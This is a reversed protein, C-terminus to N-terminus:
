FDHRSTPIKFPDATAGSDVRRNNLAPYAKHSKYHNREFAVRNALFTVVNRTCEMTQKSPCGWAEERLRVVGGAQRERSNGHKDRVAKKRKVPITGHLMETDEDDTEDDERIDDDHWDDLEYTSTVVGHYCEGTRFPTGWETTTPYSGREGETPEPPRQAVPEIRRSTARKTTTM